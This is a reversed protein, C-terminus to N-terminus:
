QLVFWVQWLIGFVMGAIAVFDVPTLASNEEGAKAMARERMILFVPVAVSIDVWYGFLLYAWAARMRLRRAEVVMFMAAALVLFALDISIGRAVHNSKLESWFGALGGAPFPLYQSYTLVLAALAVVAYAWCLAVRTPTM